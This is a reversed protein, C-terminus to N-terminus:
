DKRYIPRNDLAGDDLSIFNAMYPFYPPTQGSLVREDYVFNRGYGSIQTPGSFTGFPGYFDTIAGGFLTATGQAPRNKYNDVTFIGHPAMVIGHIEINDPATTGISVDGGWSLIGLMNTYGAANVPPGSNHDQYIIHDSIVIDKQASVTVVSDQQVTGHFKNIDDKCFILIGEDDVGDPIGTYTDSAGGVTEVTTTNAAYDITVIKTTADQSITYQPNNSADVGLELNSVDGNVYIGGTLAGAEAPVYIGQQGPESMTGLAESKLDEPDISSQLNTEEAGLLFGQDFIPVDLVGNHDDALLQYWGNNYFQAKTLHQSVEHTFHASPNHAFSFRENTHVPGYFNTNETFWVTQGAPAKHHTTFLAYKAFNDRRLIVSFSGLLTIQKSINLSNLSSTGIGKTAYNYYFVYDDESPNSPDAAQTIIIQASYTGNVETVLNLPSLILTAEGSAVNFQAEGQAYAYDELLGLSDKDVYYKNITASNSVQSIASNLDVRIRERLESLAHNAGAEALFDAQINFKEADVFRKESVSRM